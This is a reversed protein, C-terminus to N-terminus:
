WCSVSSPLKTKGFKTFGLKKFLFHSYNILDIMVTIQPCIRMLSSVVRLGIVPFCDDTEFLSSCVDSISALSGSPRGRRSLIKATVCTSSAGKLNFLNM